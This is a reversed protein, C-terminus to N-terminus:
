KSLEVIADAIKRRLLDYDAFRLGNAMKHDGSVVKDGEPSLERRGTWDGQAASGTSGNFDIRGLLEEVERWLVRARAARGDNRAALEEMLKQLTFLYRYDDVGERTAEWALTPGGTEDGAPPYQYIITGPRQYVLEPKDPQFATQYSWQIVGTGGAQFLGFGYGFRLVEPHWGTLDLNYFWVEKGDEQLRQLFAKWGEADYTGRHLVPGDHYVLVDCLDYLRELTEPNGNPGDEETCVGPISKLIRLCRETDDLRSTHEFPEDLPQFIVEPWHNKRGHELIAVIIQRYYAASKEEDGEAQKKCWRLVDSGMLWDIPMSFGARVYEGVARELDGSGDFNVQVRDGNLKLDAGLNCCLGVSTMGHERMDRWAAARFAEDGVPRHYMGFYIRDPERLRIPLVEVELPLQTSGANTASVTVTARYYGPPADEPVCVTVWYQQSTAGSIDVHENSALYQPVVMPDSHFPGWRSQGEKTGYRVPRISVRDPAITAGADNVLSTCTVQVDDMDRLARVAFAVPEREGPAAFCQLPKDIEADDPISTPFILRLYDRVYCVYGNARQEETRQPIPRDDVYRQVPKVIRDTPVLSIDDFWVAGTGTYRMNLWLRLKIKTTGKPPQLYGTYRTWDRDMNVAIADYKAGLWKGEDGLFVGSVIAETKSTGQTKIWAQLKYYRANGDVPIDALTWVGDDEPRENAVFLSRRGSHVVKDDWKVQPKQKKLGRERDDSHTYQWSFTWGDPMGNGDVDTEFGANPVLNEPEGAPCPVAYTAILLLLAIFRPM